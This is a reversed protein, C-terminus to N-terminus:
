TEKILMKQLSKVKLTHIANINQNYLMFQDNIQLLGVKLNPSVTDLVKGDQLKKKKKKASYGDQLKIELRLDYYRYCFLSEVCNLKFKNSKLYNGIIKLPTLCILVAVQEIILATGSRFM